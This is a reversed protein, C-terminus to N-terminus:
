TLIHWGRINEKNKFEEPIEGEFEIEFRDTKNTWKYEFWIKKVNDLECSSSYRYIIGKVPTIYEKETVLNEETRIRKIGTYEDSVFSVSLVKLKSSLEFAEQKTLVIRHEM